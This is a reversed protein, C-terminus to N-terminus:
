HTGLSGHGIDISRDRCGNETAHNYRKRAEHNKEITACDSSRLDPDLTDTYAYQVGRVIWSPNPVQKQRAPPGNPTSPLRYLHQTTHASYLVPCLDVLGTDHPCLMESDRSAACHLTEM